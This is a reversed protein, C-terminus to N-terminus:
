SKHWRVTWQVIEDPVTEVSQAAHQVPQSAPVVAIQSPVQAIFHLPDGQKIQEHVVITYDGQGDSQMAVRPRGGAWSKPNLPDPSQYYVHADKVPGDNTRLVRVTIETGGATPRPEGALQIRYDAPAAAAPASLSVVGLLPLALGALVLRSKPM